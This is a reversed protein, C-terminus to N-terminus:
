DNSRADNENEEKLYKWKVRNRIRWVHAQSIGYDYAVLKDKRVDRRIAYVEEETLKAAPNEEGSRTSM